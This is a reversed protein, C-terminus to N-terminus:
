RGPSFRGNARKFDGKTYLVVDLSKLPTPTAFRYGLKHIATLIEPKTLPKVNTAKIVAAKLSMPNKIKPLARHNAVKVQPAAAVKTKPAPVAKAPTAAVSLEGQLAKNIQALRNELAVKENLLSSRLAVYQTISDIKM